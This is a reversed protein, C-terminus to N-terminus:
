GDRGRCSATQGEGSFAGAGRFCHFCVDLRMRRRSKEILYRHGLTFPNCNMIASGIVGDRRPAKLGSIFNKIGDKESEM